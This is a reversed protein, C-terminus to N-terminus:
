CIFYVYCFLALYKVEGGRFIHYSIIGKRELKAEEEDEGDDGDDEGKAGEGDEGDEGYRGEDHSEM